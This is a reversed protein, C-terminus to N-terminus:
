WRKLVKALKEAILKTDTEDEAIGVDITEVEGGPERELDVLWGL